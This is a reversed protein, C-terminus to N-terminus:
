FENLVSGILPCRSTQLQEVLTSIDKFFAQNRRAVLMVYGAAAGITLADASSNAPPTDFLVLDYERLLMNVGDRFRRSSLLEQPRSATPGATIVALSPLVNAQVVREPRSVQMSLFSTLGPADADLGFIEHLRPSRLNADILLTKIGVQALSVALNSVLNSCGSDEVPAVLALGRRGAKIHQAIVQTRLLRVAEARLGRPDSIVVLEDSVPRRRATSQALSTILQERARDLDDFTIFGLELAAQDFALGRAAGHALVRTAQEESLYGLQLLTDRLPDVQAQSGDNIFPGGSDGAASVGRVVEGRGTGADDDTLLEAETETTQGGTNPADELSAEAVIPGDGGLTVAIADRQEPPLWMPGRPEAAGAALPEPTPELATEPSPKQENTM